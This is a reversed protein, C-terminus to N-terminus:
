LFVSNSSTFESNLSTILWFQTFESNLFDCNKDQLETIKAFFFFFAFDYAKFLSRKEHQFRAKM